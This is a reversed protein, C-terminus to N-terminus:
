LAETDTLNKSFYVVPLDIENYSILIAGIAINSANVYLIFPRDLHPMWLVPATSLALSKLFM